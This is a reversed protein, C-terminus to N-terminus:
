WDYLTSGAAVGSSSADVVLYTDTNDTFGTTLTWTRLGRHPRHHRGPHGARDHRRHPLGARVLESRARSPRPPRRRAAGMQPAGLLMVTVAPARTQERAIASPSRVWAQAPVGLGDCTPRRGARAARALHRRAPARSRRVRAPPTTPGARPAVENSSASARRPAADRHDDDAGHPRQGPRNAEFWDAGQADLEALRTLEEGGIEGFRRMFLQLTASRAQRPGLTRRRSAARRTSPRSTRRRTRRRPTSTPTQHRRHLRGDHDPRARASRTSSRGAREAPTYYVTRVARDQALASPGQIEALRGTAARWFTEMQFLRDQAVAFGQGFFLAAETDSSIAPVGYGDRDVFVTAGDPAALTYTSPGQAAAAPALLLVLLAYLPRM